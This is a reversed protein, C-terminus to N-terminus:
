RGPVEDDFLPPVGDDLFVPGDHGLPRVISPESRSSYDIVRIEVNYAGRKDGEFFDERSVAEKGTLKRVSSVVESSLRKGLGAPITDRYFVSDTDILSGDDGKFIVLCKVSYIDEDLNNNLTFSYYGSFHNEINWTFKTADVAQTSPKNFEKNDGSQREAAAPFPKTSGSRGQLANLYNSPIAFNLNQGDRFFAVAVGIVHGRANLIPGGSSGPSIPATIQLLRDRGESRVASVIGESFTGELGHPSGAAFVADGTEVTDSDGIKLSPGITAGVGLIVLDHEKDVAVVGDVRHKDRSGIKKAFVSGAGTVVHLNTAIQGKGIVFGSGIGLPLGHSDKVDLLVTSAFAQKAVRRASNADIPQVAPAQKHEAPARESAPALRASAGAGVPGFDLPPSAEANDELQSQRSAIHTTVALAGFACIAFFVGGSVLLM